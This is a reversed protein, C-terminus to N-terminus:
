IHCDESAWLGAPPTHLAAWGLGAWCHIHCRKTCPRCSCPAAPATPWAVQCGRDARGDQVDCRMEERKFHASGQMCIPNGPYSPAQAAYSVPLFKSFRWCFPLPLLRSGCIQLRHFPTESVSLAEALLRRLGRELQEGRWKEAAVSSGSVSSWVANMAIEKVLWMHVRFVRVGPRGGYPDMGMPDMGMPISLRGTLVREACLGDSDISHLPETVHMVGPPLLECTLWRPRSKKGCCCAQM